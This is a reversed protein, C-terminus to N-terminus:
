LTKAWARVSESRAGHVIWALGYGGCYDPVNRLRLGAQTYCLYVTGNGTHLYGKVRLLDDKKALMQDRLRNLDPLKTQETTFTDYLPDRCKAYGSVLQQAASVGGWLDIEIAGFQTRRVPVSGSIERISAECETLEIENYLDTKNLLIVDSADIQARINPLTHLLKRLSGPEVVSLVTCLEYEADLQTEKLMSGIVRPDAMGSAEIIVGDIPTEDALTSIRKLQTVFESVLCKCFISGGPVSIVGDGLEQLLRADVDLVSFDNILYVYRHDRNEQILHKLFTTKGCGLFGTVLCMPIKASM